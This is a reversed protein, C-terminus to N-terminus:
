RSFLKSIPMSLTELFGRRAEEKPPESLLKQLEFATQPRALHDLKLCADILAYL